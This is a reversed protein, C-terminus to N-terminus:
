NKECFEYRIKYAMNINDTCALLINNFLVSYPADANCINENEVIECNAGKLSELFLQKEEKIDEEHMSRIQELTLPVKKPYIKAMFIKDELSLSLTGSTYAYGNYTKADDLTEYHMISFRDYESIETKDDYETRRFNIECEEKESINYSSCLLDLQEDNSYYNSEPHQHEHVLGLAHGIEHLIVGRIIQDPNDTGITMHPKAFFSDDYQNGLQSSGGGYSEDFRVLITKKWFKIPLLGSKTENIKHFEFKLNIYKEWTKAEKIFIDMHEKKSNEFFLFKLTSNDKWKDETKLVQAGTVSKQPGHNESKQNCSILLFLPLFLIMKKM